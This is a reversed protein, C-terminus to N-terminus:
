ATKGNRRPLTAAQQLVRDIFLSTAGLYGAPDTLAEIKERDLRSSVEEERSLAEALPVGEKLAM